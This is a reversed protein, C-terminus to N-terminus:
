ATAASPVSHRWATFVNSAAFDPNPSATDSVPSGFSEGLCEDVSFHNCRANRMTAPGDMSTWLVNLNVKPPQIGSKRLEEPLRYFMRDRAQSQKAPTSSDQTGLVRWGPEVASIIRQREEWDLNGTAIATPAPSSLPCIWLRRFDNLPITFAQTGLICSSIRNAVFGKARAM